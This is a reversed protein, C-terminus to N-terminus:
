LLLQHNEFGVEIEIETMIETLNQQDTKSCMIKKRLPFKDPNTLFM